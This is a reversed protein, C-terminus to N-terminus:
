QELYTANIVFSRNMAGVTFTVNSSIQSAALEGFAYDLVVTGQQAIGAILPIVALTPLTSGSIDENTARVFSITISTADCTADKVYSFVVKRAYMNRNLTATAFGSSTSSVSTTFNIPSTIPLVPSIVDGVTNPVEQGSRPAITRRLYQTVAANNHEAM